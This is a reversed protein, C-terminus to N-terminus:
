TINFRYGMAVWLMSIVNTLKLIVVYTHIPFYLTHKVLDHINLIYM